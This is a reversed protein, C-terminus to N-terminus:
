WPPEMRYIGEIHDKIMKTNCNDAQCKNIEVERFEALTYEFIHGQGQLGQNARDAIYVITRYAECYNCFSLHCDEWHYDEFKGGEDLAKLTGCVICNDKGRQCHQRHWRTYNDVGM